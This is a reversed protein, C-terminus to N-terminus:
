LVAGPPLTYHEATQRVPDRDPMARGELSAGVIQDAREPWRFADNERDTLEYYPFEDRRRRLEADIIEQELETLPVWPVIM